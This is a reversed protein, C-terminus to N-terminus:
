ARPELRGSLMAVAIAVIWLDSATLGIRQFIGTPLASTALALSVTSVFAAAVGSVALMRHGQRHLPAVALLPVAALTMYGATASIAHLTDTADSRELPTAAVALTAMGTAVAAIWAPGALRSRLSWGFVPLSVGFAIFGATMLSRTDAGIEALRSIADDFPSYDRGAIAGGVSWAGIFAAPGLVGGAAAIRSVGFGRTHVRPTTM